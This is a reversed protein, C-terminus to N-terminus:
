IGEDYVKRCAPSLQAKHQGMCVTVKAEDPIADNCLKTADTYCAQEARERATGKEKITKAMAGSCAAAVLAAAILSRAIKM